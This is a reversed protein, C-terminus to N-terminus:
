GKAGMEAIFREPDPIDLEILWSDEDFRVRKESWDALSRDAGAEPGVQQWRYVWGPWAGARSRM